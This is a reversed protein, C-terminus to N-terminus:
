PLLSLTILHGAVAFRSKEGYGLGQFVVEAVPYKYGSHGIGDLYGGPNSM